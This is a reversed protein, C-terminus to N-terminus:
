APRSMEENGVVAQTWYLKYRVLPNAALLIDNLKGISIQSIIQTINYSCPEDARMGHAEVDEVQRTAIKGRRTAEMVIKM